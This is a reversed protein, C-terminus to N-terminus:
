AWRRNTNIELDLRRGKDRGNMQKGRTEKMRRAAERYRVKETKMDCSTKGENGARMQKGNELEEM